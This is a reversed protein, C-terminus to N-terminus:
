GSREKLAQDDALSIAELGADILLEAVQSRGVDLRKEVVNMLEIQRRPLGLLVAIRQRPERDFAVMGTEGRKLGKQAFLRRSWVKLKV